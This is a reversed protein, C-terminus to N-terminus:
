QMQVVASDGKRYVDGRVVEDAGASRALAVDRAAGSADDAPGVSAAPRLDVVGAHTSQAIQQAIQQAITGAALVRLQEIAPDGPAAHLPAIAFVTPYPPRGRVIKTLVLAAGITAFVCVTAITAGRVVRRRAAASSSAGTPAFGLSTSERSQEQLPEELPQQLPKQLPEQLLEQLPEQSARETRPEEAR